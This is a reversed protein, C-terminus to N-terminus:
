MLAHLSPNRVQAGRQHRVPALNSEKSHARCHLQNELPLVVKWSAYSRVPRIRLTEQTGESGWEGLMKVLREEVGSTTMHDATRAEAATGPM